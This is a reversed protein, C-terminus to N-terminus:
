RGNVQKKFPLEIHITTGLPAFESDKVVVFGRLAHVRMRVAYLGIGGGGQEATTTNYIGFVWERKEVPIGCGTDSFDMVLKEDNARVTCRFIKRDSDKMAKIANNTLNQVIDYFIIENCKLILNDEINMELKIGKSEFEYEYSNLLYEILQKLNIDTFSLNVKSYDFLEETARELNVMETHIQNSYLKFFDNLKENPFRLKFFRAQRQIKGMSTKVTHAVNIADEQRRMIRLYMSEHRSQEEEADQQEKVASEIRQGTKVAIDKLSTLQETLAPNKKMLDEVKEVILSVGTGANQINKAQESKNKNNYYKKFQELAEIQLIIFDKLAMYEPTSTFDQRNTADIIQPNGDKTINVIGILERTSIKDFLSAWLRKDIGLIDRKKDSEDEQEAFPTTIIGDRYIKVGDIKVDSYKKRFAERAKGDFYYLEMTVGGFIQIDTEYIELDGTTENFLLCQQKTGSFGISASKTALDRGDIKYEDSWADINYEPAIVHIRFPYKSKDFPSVIRSSERLIRIIDKKQWIDRSQTITLITGAKSKNDTPLYEYVNEIDTFLRINSNSDELQNFYEKWDIYVRLWSDSTIQKTTIEVQDGLKDVAFRGIGKEGVCRRFFPAPSLPNRRKSSTGIVMWKDRVDEFSMGIGNDKISIKSVNNITGVNEFKVTVETANADYCNKILEFLATVRDTILDRGILRFTSIDFRWKLINSETSM